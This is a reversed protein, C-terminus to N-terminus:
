GGSCADAAPFETSPDTARVVARHRRWSVTSPRSGSWRSRRLRAHRRAEEPQDRRHDAPDGAGAAPRRPARRARARRRGDRQRSQALRMRPGKAVSPDKAGSPAFYVRDAPRIGRDGRGNASRRDSQRGRCFRRRDRNRARQDAPRAGMGGARRRKFARARARADGRPRCHRHPQIRRGTRRDGPHAGSLHRDQPRAQIPKPRAAPRGQGKRDAAGAGRAGQRAVAAFRLLEGDRAPRGM